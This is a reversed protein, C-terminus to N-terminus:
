SKCRTGANFTDGAGVTDAVTVRPAPVFTHHKRTIAHAGKRRRHRLRRRPGTSLRGPLTKSPALARCGACTKTWKKVLHALAIMRAIRARYGPEDAIFAPRINPDIMLVRRSGAERIMLTEYTTACPEVMLSIGGFFLARIHQPLDPLDSPVIM